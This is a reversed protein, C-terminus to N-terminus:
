IQQYNLMFQKPSLYNLRKKIRKNKFWELYKNLEVIFEDSTTDRWDRPYFFENKITGFFGECMSNDSSCGKKSMSRIYGYENMLSIWSDLRYHFGRDSHILLNTDGVIGYAEKLMTNTLEKNPSKGITWNIPIGDFCDLLPSLYVKGDKLAFETIDTLAQKHPENVIFKRNVINEVEPSIEGKYSSYKTHSKPVYVKLGEQKMLRLVVKESINTEYSNKLEHKIRRYGYCEYNDIFIEKIIKRINEYKDYKIAKIEYFYTSKKLNIINLLERIKYTDKLANVVLTKEKNSLLSYNVGVEKKLIENAKKLVKNELELKYKERELEKIELELEKKTKNEKKMIPEGTLEKKWQYLSVTNVDYKDAILQASSDRTVLDIVAQKKEEHSLFTAKKHTKHKSKWRKDQRVRNVLTSTTPFGLKRCTKTVSEGHSFYYEIAEHKQEKSWKSWSNRNRKLLPENRRRKDRWSLLTRRNINLERATKSLQGDYQDLLKLAAEIQKLTYM